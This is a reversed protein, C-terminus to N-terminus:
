SENYPGGYWDPLRYLKGARTRSAPYDTGYLFGQVKNSYYSRNSTTVGVYADNANSRHPQGRWMPSVLDDPVSWNLSDADIIHVNAFDNDEDADTKAFMGILGYTPSGYDIASVDWGSLCGILRIKDCESFMYKMSTVHSTDLDALPYLDELESCQRFMGAFSTASSTNMHSLPTLDTLSSCGAFMNDFRQINSFDVDELPSIDELSACGSFLDVVSTVGTLDWESAASIDVLNQCSIFAPVRDGFIWDQTGDLSTIGSYSAVTNMYASAVCTTLDVGDLGKLNELNSCHQVLGTINNWNSKNWAVFFNISAVGSNYFMNGLNELLNPRWPWLYGNVNELKECDYFLGHMDRINSVNWGAIGAINILNTCKMFMESIDICQSMNWTSAFNLHTLEECGYFMNNTRIEGNRYVSVIPSDDVNKLFMLNTSTLIRQLTFVFYIPEGEFMGTFHVDEFNDFRHCLNWLHSEDGPIYIGSVDGKANWSLIYPGLNNSEMYNYIGSPIEIREHRISGSEEYEGEGTIEITRNDALLTYILGHGNTATIVGTEKEILMSDTVPLPGPNTFTATLTTDQNITTGMAPSYECMNTVDWVDGNELYGIVNYDSIDLKLHDFFYDLGTIEIREVLAVAVRLSAYLGMYEAQLIFNEYIETGLAPTFNCFHTVLYISGDDYECFVDYDAIDLKYGLPVLQEGEIWIRVPKSDDVRDGTLGASILTIIADGYERADSIGIEATGGTCILKVGIYNNDEHRLAPNFYLWPLTHRENSSSVIFTHVPNPRMTRDSEDNLIYFAEIRMEGSTNDPSLNCKCQVEVQAQIYADSVLPIATFLVTTANRERESETMESTDIDPLIIPYPSINTNFSVIRGQTFDSEERSQPNSLDVVVEDDWCYQPFRPNRYGFTRETASVPIKNDPDYIWGDYINGSTSSYLTLYTIGYEGEEPLVGQDYYEYKRKVTSM